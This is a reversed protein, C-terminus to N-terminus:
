DHERARETTSGQLSKWLTRLAKQSDVDLSALNTKGGSPVKLEGLLTLPIMLKLEHTLPPNDANTDSMTATFFNNEEDASTLKLFPQKIL